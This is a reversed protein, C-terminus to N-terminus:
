LTWPDIKRRTVWVLWVWKRPGIKVPRWAFWREEGAKLDHSHHKRFLSRLRNLM